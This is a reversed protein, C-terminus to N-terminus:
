ADCPVQNKMWAAFESFSRFVEVEAPMIESQFQRQTESLLSNKYVFQIYHAAKGPFILLLTGTNHITRLVVRGLYVSKCWDLCYNFLSLTDYILRSGTIPKTIIPIDKVSGTSHIKVTQSPAFVKSEAQKKKLKFAKAEKAIARAISEAESMTENSGVDIQIHEERKLSLPATIISTSDADTTQTSAGSVEIVPLQYQETTKFTIQPM